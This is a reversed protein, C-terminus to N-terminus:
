FLMGGDKMNPSSINLELADVGPLDNFRRAMEAFEDNSTGAISVVRVTSLSELAPVKEEIFGNLGPNSLGISNLMGSPTEATRPPPNGPRPHYTITKTVFGGLRSLEFLHGYEAGHGFTGSAMMVPNELKLGRGIETSLDM